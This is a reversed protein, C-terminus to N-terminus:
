IHRGCTDFWGGALGSRFTRSFILVVASRSTRRPRAAIAVPMTIKQVSGAATATPAFFGVLEGAVRGAALDGVVLGADSGSLGHRVGVVAGVVLGAPPSMLCNAMPEGKSRLYLGGFCVPPLCSHAYEHRQSFAGLSFTSFHSVASGFVLPLYMLAGLPHNHLIHPTQTLRSRSIGGRVIVSVVSTRYPGGRPGKSRATPKLGPIELVVLPTRWSSYGVPLLGAPSERSNLQITRANYPRFDTDHGRGFGM